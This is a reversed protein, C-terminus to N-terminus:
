SAEQNFSEVNTHLGETKVRFHGVSELEHQIHTTKDAVAYHRTSSM